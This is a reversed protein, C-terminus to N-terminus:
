RLSEKAMEISRELEKIKDRLKAIELKDKAQEKLDTVILTLGLGMYSHCFEIKGAVPVGMADASNKLQILKDTIGLGVLSEHFKLGIDM